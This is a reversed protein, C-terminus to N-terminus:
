HNSQGVSPLGAQPNYTPSGPAGPQAGFSQQNGSGPAGPSAGLAPKPTTVTTAAQSSTAAGGATTGSMSTSAAQAMTGFLATVLGLMIITSKM